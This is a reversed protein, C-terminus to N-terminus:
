AARSFRFTEATLGPGFAMGCGEKSQSTEMIEKLVFMITASSMNGFDRLVSRSAALMGDGLALTSEVQDLVSKGGPHVAWMGIDSVARGGLVADEHDRLVTAITSPIRGSLVMDFGQDRISWRMLAETDHARCAYFSDLRFGVPEASVISAACGDGWLLFTLLQEIDETEHLHLTCLELSVVLVKAGPESRVIHRATKLATVGAYCGMFGIMTREVTDRLGCARVIELDLGPAFFGTCSTLVLHTVSSLDLTGELKTVADTALAPAHHEYLEMRPGTTPFAGRRFLGAADVACEPDDAPRYCCYRREIGSRSAMRDFVARKPEAGDLQRRAFWLFAGHAEHPPVSTMVRNLFVEVM